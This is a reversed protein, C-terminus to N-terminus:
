AVVVFHATVGDELWESAAVMAPDMAAVFDARCFQVLGTRRMEAMGRRDEATWSSAPGFVACLFVKRAGFRYEDPAATADAMIAAVTLRLACLNVHDSHMPATM